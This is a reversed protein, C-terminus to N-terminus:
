KSVSKASKVSRYALGHISSVSYVDRVILIAVTVISSLYYRTFKPLRFLEQGLPNDM